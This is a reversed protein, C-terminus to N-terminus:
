IRSSSVLSSAAQHTEVANVNVSEFVQLADIDIESLSRERGDDDTLVTRTFRVQDFRNGIHETEDIHISTRRAETVLDVVM